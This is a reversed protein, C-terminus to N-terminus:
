ETESEAEATAKEIMKRFTQEAEAREIPRLRYGREENEDPIMWALSDPEARDIFLMGNLHDIEHAFARAMFGEAELTVREGDRDVGEVIVREPRLVVGQLTPLSLCGEGGDVEGEAEVIRPNILEFTKVENGDENYQAVVVARLNEGVQPAALGVGPADLMTEIMDDLLGVVQGDINKVKKSKKRLPPEGCILIRRLSM